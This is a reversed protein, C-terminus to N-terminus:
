TGERRHEGAEIRHIAEIISQAWEDAAGLDEPPITWSDGDSMIAVGGAHAMHLAHLALGREKRAELLLREADDREAELQACRAGLERYGDLSKAAAKNVMSLVDAEAKEARARAELLLRALDPAAALLHARSRVRYGTLDSSGFYARGVVGLQIQWIIEGHEQDSRIVETYDVDAAELLAAIQERTYDAM